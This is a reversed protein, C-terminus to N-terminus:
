HTSTKAILRDIEAELASGPREACLWVTLGEYSAINTAEVPHGDDATVVVPKARPAHWNLDDIFLDQFAGQDVKRTRDVTM